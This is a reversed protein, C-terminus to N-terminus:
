KHLNIKSPKRELDTEKREIEDMRKIFWMIREALFVNNTYILSNMIRLLDLQYLKLKVEVFGYDKKLFVVRKDTEIIRNDDIKEDKTM